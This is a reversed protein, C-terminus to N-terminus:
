KVPQGAVDVKVEIEKGDKLIHAEYFTTGGETVNEVLLLKGKGISKKIAEQAPAPISALSVEQEVSVINGTEDFTVDRTRGSVKLEAEYRTQGNEVEKTLGKLTAGKSQEKVAAQVAAPLDRMTVKTESDQATLQTALVYAISVCLIIKM